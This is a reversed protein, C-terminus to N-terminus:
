DNKTIGEYDRVPLAPATLRGDFATSIRMNSASLPQLRGLLWSEDDTVTFSGAARTAVGPKEPV